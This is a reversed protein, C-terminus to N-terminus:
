PTKILLEKVKLLREFYIKYAKIGNNSKVVNLHSSIFVPINTITACNNLKIPDNPIKISMFFEELEEVPWHERPKKM